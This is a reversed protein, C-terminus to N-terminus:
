INNKKMFKCMKEVIMLIKGFSLNDSFDNFEEQKALNYKKVTKNEKEFYEFLKPYKNKLFEVSEKVNYKSEVWLERETKKIEKGDKLFSHKKSFNNEAEVYYFKIKKRIFELESDLEYILNLKERTINIKNFQKEKKIIMKRPRQKKNEM